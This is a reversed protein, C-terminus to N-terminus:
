EDDEREALTRAEQWELRESETLGAALGYPLDINLSWIRCHELVPCGACIAKCERVNRVRDCGMPHVGCRKSCSHRFYRETLNKCAAFAYWESESYNSGTSPLAPQTWSTKIERQQETSLLGDFDYGSLSKTKPPTEEGSSKSRGLPSMPEKRNADQTM